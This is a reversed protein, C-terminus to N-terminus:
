KGVEEVKGNGYDWATLRVPAKRGKMREAAQMNRSKMQEGFQSTRHTMGDIKVAISMGEYIRKGKGKCAPCPIGRPAKGIPFEGDFRKDCKQCQYPFFM